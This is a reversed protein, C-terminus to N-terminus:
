STGIVAFKASNLCSRFYQSYNMGRDTLKNQISRLLTQLCAM